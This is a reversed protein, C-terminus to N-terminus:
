SVSKEYPQTSSFSGGPAELVWRRHGLAIPFNVSSKSIMVLCIYTDEEVFADVAHVLMKVHLYKPEEILTREESM